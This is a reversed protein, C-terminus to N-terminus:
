MMSKLRDLDAELQKIYSQVDVQAEPPKQAAAASTKNHAPQDPATTKHYSTWENDGSNSATRTPAEPEPEVAVAVLRPEPAPPVDTPCQIHLVKASTYVATINDTLAHEPLHYARVFAGHTTNAEVTLVDALTSVNFATLAVSDKGSCPDHQQVSIYLHSTQNDDTELQEKITVSPQCSPRPEPLVPHLASVIGDLDAALDFWDAFHRPLGASLAYYPSQYAAHHAALYQASTPCASLLALLAVLALKTSTPLLM